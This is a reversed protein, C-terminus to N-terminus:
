RPILFGLHRAAHMWQVKRWDELSIHNVLPYNKVPGPFEAAEKHRAICRDIVSKDDATSQEKPLLSKPANVRFNPMRNNRLSWNLIWKGMTVRLIWPLRFESGNLGIQITKDLHECIQSLSWNGLRQYGSQKLREIEQIVENADRFTLSRTKM